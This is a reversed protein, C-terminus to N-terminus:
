DDLCGLWALLQVYKIDGDIAEKWIRKHVQSKRTGLDKKDLWDRTEEEGLNKLAKALGEFTPKRGMVNGSMGKKYQHKKLAKQSNPHKGWDFEVEKSKPSNEKKKEEDSPTLPTYITDDKELIEQNEIADRLEKKNM